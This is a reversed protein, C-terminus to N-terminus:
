KQGQDGVETSYTELKDILDFVFKRDTASLSFLDLTASITLTGGSQLQVSKSTGPTAPLADNNGPVDPAPTAKRLKSKRQVRPAGNGAPTGPQPKNLFRSVPVGCYLAASLFFRVAKERTDGSVNYSEGMVDNVQKPTAKTLDLAFLAAYKAQLVGRLAEKRAREDSVAVAHLADTPTGDPKTLSLFKYAALLQSQVGGSQGPFTSRDIVNPVGHALNDLSNKFTAWGTYVAAAAAEEAM